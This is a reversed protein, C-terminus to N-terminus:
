RYSFHHYLVDPSRTTLSLAIQIGFYKAFYLLTDSFGEVGYLSYFAFVNCRM